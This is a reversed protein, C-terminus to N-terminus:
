FQPPIFMINVMEEGENSLVLLTKGKGAFGWGLQFLNNPPSYMFGVKRSGRSQSKVQEKSVPFGWSGKWSNM